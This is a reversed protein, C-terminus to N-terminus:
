YPEGGVIIAPKVMGAQAIPATIPKTSPARQAPNKRTTNWQQAIFIEDASSM